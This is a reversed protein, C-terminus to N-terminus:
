FSNFVHVSLQLLYEVHKRIQLENEIDRTKNLLQQWLTETMIEIVRERLMIDPNMQTPTEIISRKRDKQAKEIMSLDIGKGIIRCRTRNALFKWFFKTGHV